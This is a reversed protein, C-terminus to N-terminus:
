LRVSRCAPCSVRCVDIIAATGPSTTPQLQGHTCRRTVQEMRKERHGERSADGGRLCRRFARCLRRWALDDRDRGFDAGASQGVAKLVVDAAVARRFAAGLQAQHHVGTGHEFVVVLSAQGVEDLVHGEVACRVEGALVDGGEDLAEAHAEARVHVRVRAEIFRDVLQLDRGLIEVDDIPRHQDHFVPRVVDGERGVLDLLFATHHQFFPTETEAGLGADAVLLHRDQQLAGAVGVAGGDASRLDQLVDARRAQLLEVGVPVAGVQHRHDGDAVEVRRHDLTHDNRVEGTNRGAEGRTRAREEGYRRVAVRQVRQHGVAFRAAGGHADVAHLQGLVLARDAGVPLLHHLSEEAAQQRVAHVFQRVALVRREERGLCRAAQDHAGGHGCRHDPQHRVAAGFAAQGGEKGLHLPDNAM